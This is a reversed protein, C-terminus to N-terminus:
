KFIDLYYILSSECSQYNVACSVYVNCFIEVSSKTHGLTYPSTVGGVHELVLEFLSHGQSKM